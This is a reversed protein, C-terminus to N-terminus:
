PLNPCGEFHCSPKETLGIVGHKADTYGAFGPMGVLGAGSDLNVISEFGQAEMQRLEYKMSM